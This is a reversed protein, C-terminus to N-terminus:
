RIVIFFRGRLPDAMKAREKGGGWCVCIHLYLCLHKNAAVPQHSWLFQFTWQQGFPVKLGWIGGVWGWMGVGVKGVWRSWEGLGMGYGVGGGATATPVVPCPKGYGWDQPLCWKTVFKGECWFMWELLELKLLLAVQAVNLSEKPYLSWKISWGFCILALPTKNLLLLTLLFIVSLGCHDTQFPFSVCM